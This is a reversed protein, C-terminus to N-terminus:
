AHVENSQLKCFEEFKGSITDLTLEDSPSGLVCVPGHWFRRVMCYSEQM